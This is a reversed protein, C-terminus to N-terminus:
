KKAPSYDLLVKAKRFSAAMANAIASHDMQTGIPKEPLIRSSTFLYRKKGPLKEDRSIHPRYHEIFLQVQELLITDLLIIKAGYIMSIKYELNTLVWADDIEDHKEIKEVDDLSINMLNSARLCNFYMLSVMLYDRIDIALQKNIKIIDNGLDLDNKLKENIDKVHKSNGYKKFQDMTILNQYKLKSVVKERQGIHKKLSSCLEQVKSQLRTLEDSNINIFVGRNYLFKCFTSVSLLKSKITSAQIHHTQEERPFKLNQELLQLQSRFFYDEILDPDRLSNRSFISRAPDIATWVQKINKIMAAANDTSSKTTHIPNTTTSERYTKFDNLLKKTDDYYYRFELKNHLKYQKRFAVTIEIKHKLLPVQKGKKQEVYKGRQRKQYGSPGPKDHKNSSSTKPKNKTAKKTPQDTAATPEMTPQDIPTTSQTQGESPEEESDGSNFKEIKDFLVQVNHVQHHSFTDEATLIAKSKNYYSQLTDRFEQTARQFHKHALHNDLRDFFTYCKFCINPKHM